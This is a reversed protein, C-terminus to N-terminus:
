GVRFSCSDTRVSFRNQNEFPSDNPPNKNTKPSKTRLNESITKLNNIENKFYDAFILTILPYDKTTTTQCDIEL